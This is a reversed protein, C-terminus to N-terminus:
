TGGNGRDKNPDANRTPIRASHTEPNAFNPNFLVFLATLLAGIAISALIPNGLLINECARLTQAYPIASLWSSRSDAM